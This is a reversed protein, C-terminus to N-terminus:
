IYYIDSDQSKLHNPMNRTTLYCIIPPIANFFIVRKNETASNNM